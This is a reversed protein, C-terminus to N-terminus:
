VHKSVHLLRNNEVYKTSLIVDLYNCTQVDAQHDSNGSALAVSTYLCVPGQHHPKLPRLCIDWKLHPLSYSSSSLNFSHKEKMHNAPLLIIVM